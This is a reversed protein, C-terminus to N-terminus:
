TRGLLHLECAAVWKADSPLIPAILEEDGHFGGFGADGDEAVIVEEIDTSKVESRLYRTLM